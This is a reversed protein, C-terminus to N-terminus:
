PAVSVGPRFTMRSKDGAALGHKALFDEMSNRSRGEKATKEYVRVPDDNELHNVVEAIKLKPDAAIQSLVSKVEDDSPRDSCDVAPIDIVGSNNKPRLVTRAAKSSIEALIRKAESSGILHEVKNSQHINRYANMFEKRCWVLADESCRQIRAHGGAARVAFEVVASLEQADPRIFVPPAGRRVVMGDPYFNKNNWELYKIWEVGAELEIGMEDAQDLQARVDGPMPFNPYHWIKMLREGAIQIQEAPLDELASAWIDFLQPEPVFKKGTSLGIFMAFNRLLERAADSSSALTKQSLTLLNRGM